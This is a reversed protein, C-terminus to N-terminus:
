CMIGHLIPVTAAILAIFLFPRNLNQWTLNHNGIAELAHNIASLGLFLNVFLLYTANASPSDPYWVFVIVSMVAASFFWLTNQRHYPNSRGAGIDFGKEHASAQPFFFGEIACTGCLALGVVLTLFRAAEIANDTSHTDYTDYIFFFGAAIGGIRLWETCKAITRKIQTPRTM